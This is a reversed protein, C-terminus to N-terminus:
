DRRLGPNISVMPARCADPLPGRAFVPRTATYPLQGGGGVFRDGDRLLWGQTRDRVFVGRRDRGIEAGHHFVPLSRDGRASELLVCGHEIRLTGGVIATLM